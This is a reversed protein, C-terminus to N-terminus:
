KLEDGVQGTHMFETFCSSIRQVICPLVCFVRKYFFVSDTDDMPSTRSRWLCTRFVCAFQQLEQPSANM